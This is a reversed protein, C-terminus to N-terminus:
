WTHIFNVTLSSTVNSYKIRMDWQVSTFCNPILQDITSDGLIFLNVTLTSTLDLSKMMM